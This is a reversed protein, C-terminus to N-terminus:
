TTNSIGLIAHVSVHKSAHLVKIPTAEKFTLILTLITLITKTKKRMNIKNVKSNNLLELKKINTTVLPIELRKTPKKGDRKRKRPPSSM